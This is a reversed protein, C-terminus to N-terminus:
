QPSVDKEDLRMIQVVINKPLCALASGPMLIKGGKVCNQDECDTEDFFIGGRKVKLHASKVVIETPESLPLKKFEKGDVYVVAYKPKRSSVKDSSIIAYSIAGCFFIIALPM